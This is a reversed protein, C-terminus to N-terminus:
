THLSHTVAATLIRVEITHLLDEPSTRRDLRFTTDTIVVGVSRQYSIDKQEVYLHTM